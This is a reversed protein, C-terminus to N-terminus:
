EGRSLPSILVSSPQTLAHVGSRQIFPFVAFAPWLHINVVAALQATALGALGRCLQGM